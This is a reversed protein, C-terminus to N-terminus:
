FFLYIFLFSIIFFNVRALASFDFEIGKKRMKKKKKANNM